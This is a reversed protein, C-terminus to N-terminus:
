IVGEVTTLKLAQGKSSYYTYEKSLLNGNYTVYGVDSIRLVNYIDVMAGVYKEDICIKVVVDANSGYCTILERTLDELDYITMANTVGHNSCGISGHAHADMFCFSCHSGYDYGNDVLSEGCIICQKNM